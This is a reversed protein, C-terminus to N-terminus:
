YRDLQKKVILLKAIADRYRFGVYAHQKMRAPQIVPYQVMARSKYVVNGTATVYDLKIDELAPNALCHQVFAKPCAMHAGCTTCTWGKTPCFPALLVVGAVLTFLWLQGNVPTARAMRAAHGDDRVLKVIDGHMAPQSKILVTRVMGKAALTGSATLVTTTGPFEFHVQLATVGDSTNHARWAEHMDVTARTGFEPSSEVMIELAAGDALLVRKTGAVDLMVPTNLLVVEVTAHRQFARRRRSTLFRANLIISHETSPTVVTYNEADSYVDDSALPSASM